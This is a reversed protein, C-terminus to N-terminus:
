KKLVKKLLKRKKKIIGIEKDLLKAYDMNLEKMKKENTFSIFKKETQNMTKLKFKEKKLQDKFIQEFSIREKEKNKTVVTTTNGYLTNSSLNRM